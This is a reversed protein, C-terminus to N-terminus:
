GNKVVKLKPQLLGKLLQLKEPNLLSRHIPQKVDDLIGLSEMRQKYGQVQGLADDLKPLQGLKPLTPM